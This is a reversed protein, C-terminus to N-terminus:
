SGNSRRLNNRLGIWTTMTDVPNTPLGKQQFVPQATQGAVQVKILAVRAKVGTVTGTSDYYTFALGNSGTLPGLVPQIGSSDRMGVYWKGDTSQFSRYVVNYEYGWVPSGVSINGVTNSQPNTLNAINFTLRQGASGNPCAQATVATLRAPLWTDDSRTVTSGEYYVMLSDRAVSFNRSGYFLTDGPGTGRVTITLGTLSGGLTPIKCIFGLQRMARIKISDPGMAVIDGESADLQRIEAGLIDVASRLNQQLDIRQTQSQFLRQDTVLVRTITIGVVGFMVLAVLLEPITFGRRTVTQM